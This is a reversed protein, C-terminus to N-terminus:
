LGIGAFLKPTATVALSIPAAILSGNLISIPMNLTQSVGIGLTITTDAFGGRVASLAQRDLTRSQALDCIMLTSM